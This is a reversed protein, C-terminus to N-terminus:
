IEGFLEFDPHYFQTRAILARAIERHEQRTAEAPALKMLVLDTHLRAPFSMKPGMCEKARLAQILANKDDGRAFYFVAFRGRVLSEVVSGVNQLTGASLAFLREAEDWNGDLKEFEAIVNQALSWGTRSGAAAFLDRSEIALERGDADLVRAKLESLGHLAWAVDRDSGAKRAHEASTAYAQAAARAKPGNSLYWATGHHLKALLLDNGAAFSFARGSM